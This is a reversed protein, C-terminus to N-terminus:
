NKDTTKNCGMCINEIIKEKMMELNPACLRNPFEGHVTVYYQSTGRNNSRRVFRKGMFELTSIGSFRDEWIVTHKSM